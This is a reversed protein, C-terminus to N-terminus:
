FLLCIHNTFANVDFTKDVFLEDNINLILVCRLDHKYYAKNRLKAFYDKSVYSSTSRSKYESMSNFVNQNCLLSTYEKNRVDLFQNIVNVVM